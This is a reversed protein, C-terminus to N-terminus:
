EAAAAGTSSMIQVPATLSLDEVTVTVYVVSGPTAKIEVVWGSIGDEGTTAMAKTPDISVGSLYGTVGAMMNGASDWVRFTVDIVNGSQITYPTVALDFYLKNQSSPGAPGVRNQAVQEDACSWGMVTLPAAILVLLIFTKMFGYKQTM